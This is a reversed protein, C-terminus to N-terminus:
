LRAPKKTKTSSLPDAPPFNVIVMTGNDSLITFDGMIDGTLGRMLKIGLSSSEANIQDSTLGIGNDRTTLCLRGNDTSELTIEIIPNSVTKPFAYKISNTISENVILGLSIAQSVDLMVPILQLKFYIKQTEMSDRLHEVLESLYKDMEISAVNESQYLKQHVLSMAYVRNRSEQNAQLAKSDLYVSQSELLSVVTQLNNKVRHHVEKLLWDKEELLGEKEQLLNNLEANKVGIIRNAAQKSKFQRYLLSMVIALLGVFAFTINRTSRAKDLNAQRNANDIKLQSINQNNVLINKDKETAEARLSLLHNEKDKSELLFNLRSEEYTRAQLEKQKGLLQITQQKLQVDQLIKDTEFAIKLEEIQRVRKVANLSDTLQKNRKLHIMASQFKGLASDVQYGLLHTAAINIAAWGDAGQLAKDVHEKSM